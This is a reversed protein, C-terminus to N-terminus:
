IDDNELMSSLTIMAQEEEAGEYILMKSIHSLCM